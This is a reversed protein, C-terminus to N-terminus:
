AAAPAPQEHEPKAAWHEVGQLVGAIRLPKHWVEVFSTTELLDAPASATVAIAPTDALAPLARLRVLLEVGDLDPLGLDLLLLAPPEAEAMRLATQADGAVVLRFAPLYAFVAQMVEALAPRDEVYLVPRRQCDCAAAASSDTTPRSAPPSWSTTPPDTSIM